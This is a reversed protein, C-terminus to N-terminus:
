QPYRPQPRHPHVVRVGDAAPKNLLLGHSPTWHASRHIYRSHLLREEARDLVIPQRALVQELIRAAIPQLEEPLSLEPWGDLSAFPVDHAVALQRMVRLAVLSLEGRVPRELRIALLCHREAAASHGLTRQPVDLIDIEIRGHDALGTARLADVEAMASHWEPTNELAQSAAVSVRRIPALGLCERIHPLYGGGVDSHAGPLAIELHDPHVSNLAFNHRKEDRATLQIVQRACGPPLYLNVGPNIADSVSPRGFTGIAAVSDFLGILHIDVDQIPDLADLVRHRFLEAFLGRGPKLLENACHRAAAAGRSFGFLDFEVRQVRASRHTREFRALQVLVLGPAQRVRAVVGTEGTGMAQGRLSDPRASLTGIGEIYTKLYGMREAPALVTATSDPYLRYLHAVNSPANAYSSGPPLAQWEYSACQRFLAEREAASLSATGECQCRAAVAANNLNNGTGDFFLGLRLTIGDHCQDRGHTEAHDHTSM